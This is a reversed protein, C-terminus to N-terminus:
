LKSLDRSDYFGIKKKWADNLNELEKYYTANGSKERLQLIYGRLGNNFVPVMGSLSRYLTSEDAYGTSIAIAIDEFIGLIQIVNTWLEKDGIIQNFQDLQAAKGDIVPQLITRVRVTDTENFKHLFEYASEQAKRTENSQFSKGAHYATYAALSVAFVTGVFKIGDRHNPFFYYALIFALGTLICVTFIGCDIRLQLISTKKKVTSSMFVRIVKKNV